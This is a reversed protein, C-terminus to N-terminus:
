GNGGQQHDFPFNPENWGFNYGQRPCFVNSYIRTINTDKLTTPFNIGLHGKEWYEECVMKADVMKLHNTSPAELKKMLLDIKTALM